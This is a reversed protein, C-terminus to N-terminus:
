KRADQEVEQLQQRADDLLAELQSVLREDSVSRLLREYREVNRRLVAAKNFAPDEMDQPVRTGEFARVMLRHNRTGGSPVM